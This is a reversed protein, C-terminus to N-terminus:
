NAVSDSMPMYLICGCSTCFTATKMRLQDIINPRLMTYCQGCCNDDIPAIANERNAEVIRRYDTMIESPLKSENEELEKCVLELDSKLTALRAEVRARVKATEDVTAQHATQCKEVETEQGDIKELLELIEDSLVLNAAKEAEIQDNLLQYERNSGAAGRKTEFDKIKAERSDMQLQKEDAAMRMKTLVEKADDVAQNAQAEASEAVKVQRPGSEIQGAVDEKQILIRHLTQLLAPEIKTAAM